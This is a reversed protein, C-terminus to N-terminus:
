SWYKRPHTKEWSQQCAADRKVYYKGRRLQAKDINQHCDPCINYSGDEIRVLAAEIDQLDEKLSRHNQRNVALPNLRDGKEYDGTLINREEEECKEIQAQTTKKEKLLAQKAERLFKEDIM